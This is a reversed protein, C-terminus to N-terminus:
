KAKRAKKTGQLVKKKFVDVFETIEPTASRNNNGRVQVIDNNGNVEMTFFPREVAEARRIFIINTAGSAYRETYTGVCHHLAKGEDILEKSSAAPVTIFEGYHFKFSELSKARKMIKEDLRANASLKVQEMTNDHARKLDKPFLVSPDKMDFELKKCANLYDMWDRLFYSVKYGGGAWTPEDKEYFKSFATQKVFYKKIKELSHIKKHLDCIEYIHDRFFKDECVEKLRINRNERKMMQWLIFDSERMTSAAAKIDAIDAKSLAMRLVKQPTNGKYYLAGAMADGNLKTAIFRGLGLKMIYEVSPYKAYFGLYKILNDSRFAFKKMYEQWQSYQFATGKVAEELSEYSEEFNMNKLGAYHTFRPFVSKKLSQLPCNYWVHYYDTFMKPVGMKLIYFTHTEYETKVNKVDQAAFNNRVYIGRCVVIKPDLKSKEYYHFYSRDVLDSHGRWEHKVKVETGCHPCKIEDNHKVGDKIIVDRRCYSCWGKQRDKRDLVWIYRSHVLAREKVFKKIENSYGSQFHRRLEKIAIEEQSKVAM